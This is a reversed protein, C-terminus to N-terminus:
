AEPTPSDRRRELQMWRVYAVALASWMDAIVGYTPGQDKKTGPEGIRAILARRVNKDNGRPGVQLHKKIDSRYLMWPTSAGCVSLWGQFFRGAWFVTNFLDKGVPMGYSQVMEIALCHTPTMCTWARSLDQLLELVQKNPLKGVRMVKEGDWIAFASQINGPDVGIVHTGSAM